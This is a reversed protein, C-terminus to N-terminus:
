RPVEGERGTRLQRDVPATPDAVAFRLFPEDYLQRIAWTLNAAEDRDLKLSRTGVTVVMGGGLPARDVRVLASV